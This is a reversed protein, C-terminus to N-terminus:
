QLTRVAACRDLEDQYRVDSEMAIMWNMRIGDKAGWEWRIM